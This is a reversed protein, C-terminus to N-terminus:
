FKEMYIRKELCGLQKLLETASDIMPKAGCLYASCQSADPYDQKVLDTIFGVHGKWSNDPKWVAIKYNFNTFERKLNELYDIWFVDQSHNLGIYLTIPKTYGKERLAHEIMCRFPACGSGTALFLLTKAGDDPKLGFTGFPGIYYIPDGVKLTEFFNSGPGGPKTDVFLNFKTNGTCDAVSYCNIRSDAVKVSIYQGPIFDLPAEPEFEFYHYTSAQVTHSLTKATKFKIGGSTKTSKIIDRKARHLLNIIVKGDVAWVDTLTVIVPNIEFASINELSEVLKGFRVMLDYLKDLAYSPEGSFGKLLAYVKSKEVLKQAHISEVPLLQM